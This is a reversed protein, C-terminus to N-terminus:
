RARARAGMINPELLGFKPRLIRDIFAGLTWAGLDLALEIRALGCVYCKTGGPACPAEAMLLRTGRRGTTPFQSLYVNRLEAHAGRLVKAAELVILGAIIANTTAIAHIINGAMGKAEFLSLPAIRYSAGRLQAAAAVFEVALADDKDFALQPPADGQREALRALSLLFVDAAEEASWAQQPALLGLSACASAGPPGAALLQACRAAVAPPAPPLPQPAVRGPKEWLSTIRLLRAVDDGFARAYIRAAFDAAAEGARRVFFLAREQRQAATEAAPDPEGEETLAPAEDAEELDSGGSPGFLTSFLMDKAWVICHIPQPPHRSLLRLSSRGARVREPTNRITCVPFTKPTAKPECEFCQTVDKVHM